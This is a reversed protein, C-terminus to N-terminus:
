VLSTGFFLILLLGVCRFARGYKTPSKTYMVCSTSSYLFVLLIVTAVSLPKDKKLLFLAIMFM